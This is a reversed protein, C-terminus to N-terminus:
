YIGPPIELEPNGVHVLKWDWPKVSTRRWELEFPTALSNIRQKIVQTVESADGDVTVRGRWVGRDGGSSVSDVKPQIRIDRVDGFVEPLRALLLTRDNNWQDRYDAAIFGAVRTWNKREIGRLLGDTHRGIQRQPQWLWVLYFAVMLTIALGVYFGGQFSPRMGSSFSDLLLRWVLGVWFRPM